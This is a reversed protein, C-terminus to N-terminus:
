VCPWEPALDRALCQVRRPQAGLARLVPTCLSVPWTDVRPPPANLSVGLCPPMEHPNQVLCPVPWASLLVALVPTLTLSLVAPSERLQLALNSTPASPVLGTRPCSSTVPSQKLGPTM